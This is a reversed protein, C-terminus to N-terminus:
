VCYCRFSPKKLQDPMIRRSGLFIRTSGAHDSVIRTKSYALHIYRQAEKSFSFRILYKFHIKLRILYIDPDFYLDFQHIKYDTEEAYFQYVESAIADLSLTQSQPIVRDFKQKVLIVNIERIFVLLSGTLGVIILVLGVSLGIYRHLSFAINRIKRTNM